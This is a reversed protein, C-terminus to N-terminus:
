EDGISNIVAQELTSDIFAEIRAVAEEPTEGDKVTDSLWVDARFSEYNDMNKTVGKSMGVIAGSKPDHKQSHDCPVGQKLTKIGDSTKKTTTLNEEATEALSKNKRKLSAM